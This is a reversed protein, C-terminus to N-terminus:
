VTTDVEYYYCHGKTDSHYAFEVNLNVVGSSDKRYYQYDGPKDRYIEEYDAEDTEETLIEYGREKCEFNKTTYDVVRGSGNEEYNVREYHKRTYDTTTAIGNAVVKRYNSIWQPTGNAVYDVDASTTRNPNIARVAAEILSQAQKPTVSRYQKEIIFGTHTTTMTTAGKM